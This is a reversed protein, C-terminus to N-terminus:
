GKNGPAKLTALVLHSPEHTYGVITGSAPSPLDRQVAPLHAVHIRKRVIPWVRSREIVGTASYPIHLTSRTALDCISWKGESTSRNWWVTNQAHPMTARQTAGTYSVTGNDPTSYAHQGYMFTIIVAFVVRKERPLPSSACQPPGGVIRVDLSKFRCALIGTQTFSKNLNVGLRLYRTYRRHYLPGSHLVSLVSTYRTSDTGYSVAQANSRSPEAGNFCSDSYPVYLFAFIWIHGIFASTSSPNM